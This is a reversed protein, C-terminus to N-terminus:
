HQRHPQALGARPGAHPRLRGDGSGPVGEGLRLRVPLGLEDMEGTTEGYLAFDRVKSGRGQMEAKMGAHAIVLRGDDLVYHSVLGDLFLAKRGEPHAYVRNGWVPDDGELRTEVFGLQELPLSSSPAVVTSIVLLISHATSTKSITGSPCGSSPRPKPRRPPKWSSCM